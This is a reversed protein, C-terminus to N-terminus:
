AGPEFADLLVEANRRPRHRWVGVVVYQATPTFPEAVSPGHNRAIDPPAPVKAIAAHTARDVGFLRHQHRANWGHEVLAALQQIQGPGFAELMVALADLMQAALPQISLPYVGVPAADSHACAVVDECAAADVAGGQQQTGLSRVGVLAQALPGEQVQDVEARCAEVCADVRVVAGRLGDVTVVELPLVADIARDAVFKFHRGQVRRQGAGQETAITDFIGPAHGLQRMGVDHKRQQAVTEM